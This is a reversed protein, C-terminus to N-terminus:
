QMDEFRPQTTILPLSKVVDFKFVEQLIFTTNKDIQSIFPLHIHSWFTKLGITYM